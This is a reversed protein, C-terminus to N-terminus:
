FRWTVGGVVSRRIQHRTSAEGLQPRRDEVLDFGAAFIELGGFPHWAVRADLGFYGPVEPTDREDVARVGLDVELGPLPSMLSRVVIHYSPDNGSASFNSIDTFGPKLELEKKMAAVGGSLRWADTVSYHAYVEVGYADGELGGALFAPLAGGPQLELTRLDAFQNFFASVSLVLDAFPQGRYGAEYAFVIESGADPSRAVVGPLHLDRDLRSPTRVARSVSAWWLVVDSPRWALRVNPMYELDTFTHDELKTGATLTFTESLSIEDQVFVSALHRRSNENAVMFAAVNAFRDEVVRYGGGWVVDHRTGLGFRHQMELDYTDVDEALVPQQDRGTWDYYARVQLHSTPSLTRRWRALVNGGTLENTVDPQADELDTVHSEYLDGQLTLVDAAGSWEARYGGQIRNWRDVNDTGDANVSHGREFGKGYVRVALAESLRAGYRAGADWDVSGYTGTVLGGESDAAAKTIVNIVGNVANAGWLTGGPGSIVEIREVDALLVDQADWFVGSHLPSYVTRGDILVLLKNSAAPSNFGRASVAYGLADDRAVDLSPALRLAEPLSRAGFRRIEENTIVYIAAPAAALAEARLSVSTVELSALEDISMQRLDEISIAEQATALTPAPALLAVSLVLISWRTRM